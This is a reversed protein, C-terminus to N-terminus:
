PVSKRLEGISSILLVFTSLKLMCLVVCTEALGLVPLLVVGGVVGGFWGGILDAGYLLGATSSLEQNGKASLYIKNALPFQLGILLGSVFALPLFLVPRTSLVDSKLFVFPLVISFLIIAVETGSFCILYRTREVLHSISLYGGVAVGVMLASIIIGIWSFVYGYLTQFAFILVLDFVMGAFGTTAICLPVSAQAIARYRKRTIGLVLMLALFVFLFIPLTLKEFSDFLGRLSPSFLANWYALSYFVGLPHFDRNIKETAQELSTLFWDHWHPNLKYAIHYPTLLKTEIGRETFRQIIDHPKLLSIGESQSALFLNTGDGPIVVIYSFVDYLTNLICRNLNKLEEGLYTLSGPLHIVLIGDDGLRKMVSFFFERTFLRNVQLDQPNSLGLFVLDYHHSSEKIFYRGDVYHVNLKSSTLESDTLPTSFKRVMDLLLPDLEVYDIREVPHKLVEHIVGGAGSSIILVNRPAPHYLMPLHIFEEVFTIDPTPTTIIPIGDSFFTYQEERMTVVVNGYISNQYHLVHQGRWQQEISYEQLIDAGNSLLLFSFLLLILLSIFGVVRTIKIRSLWFRGLLLICMILNLVAVGLSIQISNFYIILVYTFIIGGILTGITEYIYVRGISTAGHSRENVVDYLSCGFTFLAGHIVSVLLLVFFSSFVMPVIGLAEGPAVGIVTKITRSLYIAILFLISFLMQLCVFMEIKNRRHEIHKGLFYAGSAELLLWNALIIGISLENGQFTILLERLLLVQAVIGSFGMILIAVLIRIKMISYQSLKKRLIDNKCPSISSQRRAYEPYSGSALFRTDV